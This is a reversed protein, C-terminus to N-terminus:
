STVARSTSCCTPPEVRTGGAGTALKLDQSSLEAWQAFMQQTSQDTLKLERVSAKGAFRLSEGTKSATAANNLALKGSLSAEGTDLLLRTSNSLYPSFAALAAREIGLDVEGQQQRLDYRAKAQLAGGSQLTARVTATLPKSGAAGNLEIRDTSVAIGDLVHSVPKALASDTVTVRGGSLAVGAISIASSPAATPPLHRRRRTTAAVSNRRSRPLAGRWMSAM